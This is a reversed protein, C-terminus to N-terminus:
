SCSQLEELFINKFSKKFLFSKLTASTYKAVHKESRGCPCVLGFQPKVKFTDFIFQKIELCLDKCDDMNGHAHIEIHSAYDVLTVLITELVDQHLKFICVCTYGWGICTDVQWIFTAIYDSFWINWVGAM